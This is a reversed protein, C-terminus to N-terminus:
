VEYVAESKMHGWFRKEVSKRISMPLRIKVVKGRVHEVAINRSGM